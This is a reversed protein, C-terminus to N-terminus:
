SRSPVQPPLRRAPQERLASLYIRSDKAYLSIALEAQEGPKFQDPSMTDPLKIELTETARDPHTVMFELFNVPGTKFQAIRTRHITGKVFIM